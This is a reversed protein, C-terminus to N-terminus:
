LLPRLEEKTSGDDAICLEWYPYLQSRVSDIAKALWKAEVNYVPMIISFVPHYPMQQIEVAIEQRAAASWKKSEYLHIVQRLGKQRYIGKLKELKFKLNNLSMVL